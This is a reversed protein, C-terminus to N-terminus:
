AGIAKAIAARAKAFARGEGAIEFSGPGGEDWAIVAQLAALMEPAATILRANAVKTVMPKDGSDFGCWHVIASANTHETSDSIQITRGEHLMYWPGPTHKSM